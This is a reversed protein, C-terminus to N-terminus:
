LPKMGENEAAEISPCGKEGESALDTLGQYQRRFDQNCIPCGPLLQINCGHPCIVTNSGATAPPEASLGLISDLQKKTDSALFYRHRNTETTALTDTRTWAEDFAAEVLEKLGEITKDRAALQKRTERFRLHEAIFDDRAEQGDKRLEAIVEDAESCLYYEPRISGVKANARERDTAIIYRKM